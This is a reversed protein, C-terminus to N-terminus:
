MLTSLAVCGGLRVVGRPGLYRAVVHYVRFALFVVVTLVPGAVLHLAEFASQPLYIVGYRASMLAWVVAILVFFDAVGTLIRRKRRPLSVLFEFLVKM